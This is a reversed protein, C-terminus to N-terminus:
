CKPRCTQSCDGLFLVRMLITRTVYLLTEYLRSLDVQYRIALISLFGGAVISAFKSNCRTSGTGSKEGLELNAEDCRDGIQIFENLRSISVKKDIM